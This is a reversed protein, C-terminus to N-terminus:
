IPLLRDTIISSAGQALLEKAREAENVTWVAFPIKKRRLETSLKPTVMCEDLHLLHLRLLPAFWLRRLARANGKEIRSTALLARPVDPCLQSLLALSFPNFSSFMVRHESKTEEVIKAVRPEFRGTDKLSTKLEINFYEPCAADLLVERLTPAKAFHKMEAATLDRVRAPRGGLRLLDEDHFVVVEQDRTLRVDLECMEFGAVKSARFAAL